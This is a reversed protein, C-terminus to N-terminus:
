MGEEHRIAISSTQIIPFGHGLYLLWWYNELHLISNISLMKVIIISLSSIDLLHFDSSIDTVIISFGTHNAWGCCNNDLLKRNVLTCKWSSQYSHCFPHEISQLQCAWPHLHHHTGARIQQKPTHFILWVECCHVIHFSKKWQGISCFLGSFREQPHLWWLGVAELCEVM